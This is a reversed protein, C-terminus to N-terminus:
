KPHTITIWGSDRNIKFNGEVDVLKLSHIVNHLSDEGWGTDQFLLTTEGHSEAKFNMSVKLLSQGEVKTPSITYTVTNTPTSCSTFVMIVLMALISYKM